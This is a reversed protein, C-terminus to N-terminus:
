RNKSYTNDFLFMNEKNESTPFLFNQAEWLDVFFLAWSVLGGKSDLPISHMQKPSQVLLNMM